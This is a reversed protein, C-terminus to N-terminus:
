VTGCVFRGGGTPYAASSQHTGPKRYVSNNEILEALLKLSGKILGLYQNILLQNNRNKERVDAIISRLRGAGALLKENFPPDVCRALRSVTVAKGDIRYAESLAGVMTKRKEEFRQLRVVLSEKEDQVQDFRDKNSLSLSAEEDALVRRMERYCAAEDDLIALLEIIKANM